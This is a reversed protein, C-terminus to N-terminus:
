YIFLEIGAIVTIKINQKDPYRLFLHYIMPETILCLLYHILMM